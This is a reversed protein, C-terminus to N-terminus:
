LKKDPMHWPRSLSNRNYQNPLLTNPALNQASNSHLLTYAAVTVRSIAPVMEKNVGPLSPLFLYWAALPYWSQRTWKPGSKYRPHPFTMSFGGPIYRVQIPGLNLEFYQDTQTTGGEKFVTGCEASFGLPLVIM